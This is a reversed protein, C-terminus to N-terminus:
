LIDPLRNRYKGNITRVKSDFDCYFATIFYYINESQKRFPELIIVYRQTIDYIYTRNGVRDRYSFILMGDKKNEEIHFKIWHLRKSREEDFNREFSLEGGNDRTTLHKHLRDYNQELTPDIDQPKIDKTRFKFDINNKIDREFIIKLVSHIYFFSLQRFDLFDHYVANYNSNLYKKLDDKSM